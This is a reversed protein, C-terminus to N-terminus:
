LCENMNLNSIYGGTSHLVVEMKLLLHNVESSRTLEGEENCRIFNVKCGQNRLVLILFCLLELPPRTNRTPFLFPHPVIWDIVLLYASSSCIFTVNIFKFDVFLMKGPAMNLLMTKLNSPLRPVNKVMYILWPRDNHLMKAVLSFGWITKNWSMYWLCAKSQCRFRLHALQLPEEITSFALLLIKLALLTNPRTTLNTIQHNPLPIPVDDISASKHSSNGTEKYTSRM